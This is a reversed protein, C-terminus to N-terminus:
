PQPRGPFSSPRPCPGRCPCPCRSSCPSRCPRCATPETDLASVHLGTGGKHLDVQELDQLLHARLCPLISHFTSAAPLASEVSSNDHLM